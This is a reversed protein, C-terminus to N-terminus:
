SRPYDRIASALVSVNDSYVEVYVNGQVGASARVCNSAAMKCPFRRGVLFAYKGTAKLAVYTAVLPGGLAMLSGLLTSTSDVVPEVFRGTGVVQFVIQDGDIDQILCRNDFKITNQSTPVFQFNVISTGTIAGEVTGIHNGVFDAGFNIVTDRQAFFLQLGSNFVARDEMETKAAKAMASMGGLGLLGALINRRKAMNSKGRM